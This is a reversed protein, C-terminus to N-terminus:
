FDQCSTESIIFPARVSPCHLTRPPSFSPHANPTFDFCNKTFYITPQVPKSPKSLKLSLIKDRKRISILFDSFKSFDDIMLM